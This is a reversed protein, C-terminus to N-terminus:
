AAITARDGVIVDGVRLVEAYAGLCAARGLGPVERRRRGLARLVEPARPLGPQAAGPVACRPTPVTVRLIVEAGVQIM